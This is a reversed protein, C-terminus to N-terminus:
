LASTSGLQKWAGGVILSTVLPLEAVVGLGDGAFGSDIAREVAAVVAALL